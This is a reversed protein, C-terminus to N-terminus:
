EVTVFPRLKELTKPGIGSVRRLDDISKFASKAREDLIRQSMKPGIGPLKQLEDQKAQNVNIPDTLKSAKSSSSPASSMASKSVPTSPEGEEMAVFMEPTAVFLFPRIRDLTKPGIGSVQRLDDVSRFSGHRHRFDVVRQALADGLGPLLRLEAKTARNLDLAPGAHEFIDIAVKPSESSWRGLIFFLGAVVILGLALQVSIPWTLLTPAVTPPQRPPGSHIASSTPDM